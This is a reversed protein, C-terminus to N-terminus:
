SRDDDRRDDRRPRPLPEDPDHEPGHPEVNDPFILPDYRPQETPLAPNPDRPERSPPFLPSRFYGWNDRSARDEVASDHLVSDVRNVGTPQSDGRDNSYLM